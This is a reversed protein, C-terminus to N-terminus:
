RRIGLEDLIQDQRNEMEKREAETMHDYGLLHLLSHVILFAYERKVSHGYAEAQAYVHDVSLVIDGLMIEGTDPNMYATKQAQILTYDAPAPYDALPFSLVDTARDIGRASLNLRHIDDDDTLTLCIEASYPFQEQELVFAALKRALEKYHFSFGPQKDIVFNLTM